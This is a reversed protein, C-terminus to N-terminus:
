SFSQVAGFLVMGTKLDQAFIPFPTYFFMFGYRLGKGSKDVVMQFGMDEPSIKFRM